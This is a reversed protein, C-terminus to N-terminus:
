INLVCNCLNLYEVIELRIINLLKNKKSTVKIRNENDMEFPGTLTEKLSRIEIKVNLRKPLVSTSLTLLWTTTLIRRGLIIKAKITPDEREIDPATKCPINLFGIASGLIIPTEEPAAVPATIDIAKPKEDNDIKTNGKKENVPPTIAAIRTKEKDFNAELLEFIDNIRAPSAIAM